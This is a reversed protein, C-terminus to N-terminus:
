CLIMVTFGDSGLSDTLTGASNRTRVWVTNAGTEEVAIEGAPATGGGNDTLTALKGCNTIPRNFTVAYTGVNIRAVGTVGRDELLTAGTNDADVFAFLNVLRSKAVNNMDGVGVTGNRIDFSGVSNNRIDVGQVSNNVIKASNVSNNPVNFAGVPGGGMLTVTVLSAAVVLGIQSLLKKGPARM